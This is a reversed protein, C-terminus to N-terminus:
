FAWLKLEIRPVGYVVADSKRSSASGKGPLYCHKMANESQAHVSCVSPIGLDALKKMGQFVRFGSGVHAVDAVVKPEPGHKTLSNRIRENFIEGCMLIEIVEDGIKLQRLEQCYSIHTFWQNGRTSSRQQWCHIIGDTPSWAYGYYPLLQGRRLYEHDTKVNKSIEDVGFVVTIGIQEAEAIFRRAIAERSDSSRATFFGGPLVLIDAGLNSARILAQKGSKFRTDNWSADDPRKRGVTTAVLKM